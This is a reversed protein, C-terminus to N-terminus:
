ALMELRALFSVTRHEAQGETQSQDEEEERHNQCPRQCINYFIHNDLCFPTIGRRLRIHGAQTLDVVMLCVLCLLLAAKM